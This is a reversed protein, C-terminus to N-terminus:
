LDDGHSSLLLRSCLVSLTISLCPPLTTPPFAFDVCVIAFDEEGRSLVALGEGGSSDSDGHRRGCFCGRVEKFPSHALSVCSHLSFFLSRSALLPIPLSSSASPPFLLQTKICVSVM